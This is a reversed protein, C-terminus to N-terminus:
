DVILAKTAKKPRGHKNKVPAPTEIKKLAEDPPNLAEMRYGVALIHKCINNKAYAVCTCKAGDLEDLKGNFSIEYMSSYKDIFDDFDSYSNNLWTKVDDGTLKEM